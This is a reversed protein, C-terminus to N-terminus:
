PRHSLGKAASLPAHTTAASTSDADRHADSTTQGWGRAISSVYAGHNTWDGAPTAGKAATSVDAGHTGAPPADSQKESDVAVDHAETANHTHVDAVSGDIGLPVRKGSAERAATIGSDSATPMVHAAALGTTLSVAALAAVLSRIRHMLQTWGGTNCPPDQVEELTTAAYANAALGGM